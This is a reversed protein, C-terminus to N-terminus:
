RPSDGTDHLLVVDSETHERFVGLTKGDPSYHFNQIEDSEFNTIQRGRSGDLPELWLNDVGNERIPYVVASGDPTFQPNQAVRSDPDLLRVAPSPGADLPILAIKNTGPGNSEIQNLLIALWKGDRSIAFGPSSFITHAVITGPVIEPTGGNIPVRMIQPVLWDEYYVWKGDPMCKAAIDISGYTLQKLNSGDASMRWVNVKTASHNDQELIVDRGNPCAIAAPIIAGPNSVITTKNAGDPSIRLLTGGDAFYLDGNSAWNFLFANKLQALAPAPPSGAFGSAPLVYLTRAVKEQVTALAKGDASLTLTRYSNTDNTITRFQTGAASLLGIQARAFPSTNSQYTVVLGRGDALWAMDNLQM